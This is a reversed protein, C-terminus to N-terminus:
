LNTQIKQGSAKIDEALDMITEQFIEATEPDGTIETDMRAKRNAREETIQVDIAGLIKMMKVEGASIAPIASDGAMAAAETAEPETVRAEAAEEGSIMEGESIVKEGSDAEAEEQM